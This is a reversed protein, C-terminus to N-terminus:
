PGPATLLQLITQQNALITAQNSLIAQQNKRLEAFVGMIM